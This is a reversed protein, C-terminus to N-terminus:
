QLRDMTKAMRVIPLSVGGPLSVALYELATYGKARYFPVGTLTAGMELRTFGEAFATCECLDLILAGVGQRAWRPHVFFARIRAPDCAPDLLSDERDAFQDGGYLTKRRSWGGCGVITPQAEDTEVAYYTCDTILQSDVGYVGRLAAERQEVTYDEAQLERVSAEILAKLVPIDGATAHRIRFVMPM